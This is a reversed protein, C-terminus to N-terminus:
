LLGSWEGAEMQFRRALRPGAWLALGVAPLVMALDLAMHAAVGAPNWEVSSMAMQLLYEWAVVVVALMGALGGWRLWPRREVKEQLLEEFLVVDSRDMRGGKM